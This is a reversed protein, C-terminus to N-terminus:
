PATLYAVSGTAAPWFIQRIEPLLIKCHGEGLTKWYKLTLLIAKTFFITIDDYIM